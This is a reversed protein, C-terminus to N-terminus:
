HPSLPSNHLPTAQDLVLLLEGGRDYRDLQTYVQVRVRRARAQMEPSEALKVLFDAEAVAETPQNALVLALEAHFETTPITRAEKLGRRCVEIVAKHKRAQGLVDLQGFCIEAPRDNRLLLLLHTTGPVAAAPALQQLFPGEGPSRPKGRFVHESKL